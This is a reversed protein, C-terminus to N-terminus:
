PIKNLWAQISKELLEVCEVYAEPERRYPDGIETGSWRGLLQVRGALQPAQAQIRRAHAPEMVLILECDVALDARFRRARHGSLDLGRAAMLEVCAPDALRGPEAELGASAVSLPRRRGAAAERWMAEAMPSRCINATCVLLVQPASAGM